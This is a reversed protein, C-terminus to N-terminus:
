AEFKFMKKRGETGSVVAILRHKVVLIAVTVGESKGYVKGM